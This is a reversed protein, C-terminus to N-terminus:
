KETKMHVETWARKRETRFIIRNSRCAISRYAINQLSWNTNKRRRQIHHWTKQTKWLYSHQVAPVMKSRCVISYLEKLAKRDGKWKQHAIAKITNLARKAKARFKIHEEWNMRLFQSSEKYSIIQNQAYIRTTRM